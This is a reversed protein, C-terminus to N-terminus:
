QNRNLLAILMSKIESIDQKMNNIEDSHRAIEANKAALVARREQYSKHQVPSAMLIAGTEMDRVLNSDDKVKIAKIM